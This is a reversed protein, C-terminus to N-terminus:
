INLAFIYYLITNRYNILNIKITIYEKPISSHFKSIESIGKSTQKKKRKCGVDRSHNTRSNFTTFKRNLM